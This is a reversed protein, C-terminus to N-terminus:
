DTTKTYEIIIDANYNSYDCNLEINIYKGGNQTSILCSEGNILNYIPLPFVNGQVYMVGYIKRTIINNLGTDYENFRETLGNPMNLNIVKRYLTKGDVWTGIVHEYSHYTQKNNFEKYGIHNTKIPGKELQPYVTTDVTAGKNVRIMACTIDQNTFNKTIQSTTYTVVTTVNVLYFIIDPNNIGLSLTYTGNLTKFISNSGWSNILYFDAYDTATGKLTISNDNNVTFSIGYITKNYNFIPMLNKCVIDDVTLIEAKSPVISNGDKDQFYGKYNAM